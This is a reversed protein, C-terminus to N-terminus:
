GGYKKSTEIARPLNVDAIGIFRVDQRGAARAVLGSGQRGIGIGAIGIRDNAGPRGPAALVGSPILYPAAVATGAVAARKLFGRRSLSNTPFM